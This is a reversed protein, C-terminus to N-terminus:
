KTASKISSTAVTRAKGDGDKFTIEGNKLRTISTVKIREKTGMSTEITISKGDLRGKVQALTMESIKTTAAPAAGKEAKAAAEAKAVRAVRPPSATGVAGPFRGGKGIRQGLSSTGSHESFLDKVKGEGMECRAAIIGWSLGEERAAIIGKAVAEEDGLIRDKPKVEFCMLAFMAKGQPLGVEDSIEGWKVGDARLKSIKEGLTRLESRTERLNELRTRTEEKTEAVEEKAKTATAM